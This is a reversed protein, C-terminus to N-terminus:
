HVEEGAMLGCSTKVQSAPPNTRLAIAVQRVGAGTDAEAVIPDHRSGSGARNTGTGLWIAAREDEDEFESM